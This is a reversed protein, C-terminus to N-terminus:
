ASNVSHIHKFAIRRKNLIIDVARAPLAQPSHLVGRALSDEARLVVHQQRGGSGGALRFRGEKGDQRQQLLVRGARHPHQVDGRQFRQDVVLEAPQVLQALLRANGDGAPVPVRRGGFLLLQQLMGGADELDRRFGQLCQQDVLVHFDRREEAVQAEDHDVLDVGQQPRVPPQLGETQDLAQAAQRAARRPPDAKGGGDAVRLVRSLEQRGSAPPAGDDGPEVAAPLDPPQAHFVEVVGRRLRVLALRRRLVRRRLLSGGIVCRLVGVWTHAIDKLVRLATLAQDEGVGPLLAFRDALQQPLVTLRVALRVAEQDVVAVEGGGVPLAGLLLHLVVLAQHGDTGRGRQLQADIDTPQLPGELNVRGERHGAKQLAHAAGATPAIGGLHPEDHTLIMLLGSGHQRFADGPIQELANRQHLEVRLLAEHLRRAHVAKGVAQEIVLGHAGQCGASLHRWRLQSGPNQGQAAKMADGLIVEPQQQAVQNLGIVDAARLVASQDQAEGPLSDDVAVFEVGHKLLVDFVSDPCARLLQAGNDLGRGHAVLDGDGATDPRHVLHIVLPPLHVARQHLAVDRGEEPQYGSIDVGPDQLPHPRHQRFIHLIGIQHGVGDAAQSLGPLRGSVRAHQLTRQDM